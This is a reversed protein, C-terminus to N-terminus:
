PCCYLTLISAAADVVPAQRLTLHQIHSGAIQQLNFSDGDPALGGASAGLSFIVVALIAIRKAAAALAM